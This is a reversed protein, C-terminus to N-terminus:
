RCTILSQRMSLFIGSYASVLCHLNHHANTIYIGKSTDWPFPQSKPLGLRSAYEYDLAIIGEDSESDEYWLQNVQTSNNASFESDWTYPVDLDNTLGALFSNLLCAFRSPFPFPNVM